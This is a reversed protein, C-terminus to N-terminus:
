GEAGPRSAGPLYRGPIPNEPREIDFVLNAAWWRAGDFVLQVSNIGRSIPEGDPAIRSEYTSLAHAVHGFREVRPGIEWEYFGSERYFFRAAAIFGEVDWSRLVYQSTGDPAGWRDLTFRGGPLFLSRLRDWDRERQIGAPGSISEYVATVAAEPLQVDEARAEPRGLLDLIAARQEVDM